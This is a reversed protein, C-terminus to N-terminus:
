LNILLNDVIDPKFRISSNIRLLNHNIEASHPFTINVWHPISSDIRGIEIASNTDYIHGRAAEPYSESVYNLTYENTPKAEYFVTYSDACNLVPINLAIESLYASKDFTDVHIPLNQNQNIGFILYKFYNSVKKLELFKVLIPCSSSFKDWSKVAIQVPVKQSNIECESLLLNYLEHQVTPLLKLNINANKCFWGLRDIKEM